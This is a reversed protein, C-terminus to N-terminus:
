QKRDGPKLKEFMKVLDALSQAGMKQMVHGRHTKITLESTGLEGGIQKNLLGSAVLGLVEKERVTLSGYRSRLEKMEARESWAVRDRAIAEQIARLLERGRFPKTLFEVAGAKMARVSMPIDGHGTIFIIPICINAEALAHQFELGDLDPLRVDLVLCGPGDRRKHNLFEHASGFTEVRLGVSALLNKVADRVSPDDDVVFVIPDSDTM